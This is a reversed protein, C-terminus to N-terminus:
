KCLFIMQVGKPSILHANCIPLCVPLQEQSLTAAGQSCCFYIIGNLPPRSPDNSLAHISPHFGSPQVNVIQMHVSSQLDSRTSNFMNFTDFKPDELVLVFM